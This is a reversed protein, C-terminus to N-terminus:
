ESIFAKTVTLKSRWKGYHLQRQKLKSLDIETTNGTPFLALNRREAEGDEILAQLKRKREVVEGVRAIQAQRAV